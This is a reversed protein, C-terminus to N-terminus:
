TALTSFSLDMFLPSHFSSHFLFLTLVLLIYHYGIVIVKLMVILVMVAVSFEGSLVFHLLTFILNVHILVM